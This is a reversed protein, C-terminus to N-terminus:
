SGKDYLYIKDLDPQCNMLNIWSIQKEQGQVVFLLYEISIILDKLGAQIIDCPAKKQLIM